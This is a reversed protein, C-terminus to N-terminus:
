KLAIPLNICSTTKIFCQKQAVDKMLIDKHITKLLPNLNLLHSFDQQTTSHIETEWIAEPLFRLLNLQNM